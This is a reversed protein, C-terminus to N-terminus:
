SWRFRMATKICFRLKSEVISGPKATALFRKVMAHHPARDQEPLILEAMPAEMAEERSFGLLIEAAPNYDVILGSENSVIKASLSNESFPKWSWRNPM